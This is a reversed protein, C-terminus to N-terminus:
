AFKKTLHSKTCESEAPYFSRQFTRRIINRSTPVLDSPSQGCLCLSNSFSNIFYLNIKVCWCIYDGGDLQIEPCCKQNCVFNNSVVAFTTRVETGSFLFLCSSFTTSRHTIYTSRCSRFYFLLLIDFTWHLSPWTHVQLQHLPAGLSWNLSSSKFGYLRHLVRLRLVAVDAGITSSPVFVNRHPSSLSCLACICCAWLRRQLKANM